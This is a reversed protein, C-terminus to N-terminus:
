IVIFKVLHSNCYVMNRRDNTQLATKAELRKRQSSLELDFSEKAREQPLTAEILFFFALTLDGLRFHFFFLTGAM